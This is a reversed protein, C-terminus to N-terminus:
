LRTTTSIFWFNWSTGEVIDDNSELTSSRCHLAENNPFESAGSSIGLSALIMLIKLIPM